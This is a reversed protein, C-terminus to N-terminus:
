GARKGAYRTAGVTIMHELNAPVITSAEADSNGAACVLIPHGFVDDTDVAVMTVIEQWVATGESDTEGGLSLNIVKAPDQNVPLGDINPDGVSWLISALIDSDTGGLQIGLARVPLIKGAWMVGATGEGNNTEAGITGAVHTGHFSHQGNGFLNDGPDTSDTDRGNGDNAIGESEIVDVGALARDIIDPHSRILGSDIVAVVVDDAGTTIDWAGPLRAFEYHWQYFYFPDNPIRFGRKIFNRAVVKVGPVRAAHLAKAAVTTDELSLPAGDKTLHVLCLLLASCSGVEIDVVGLQPALRAAAFMAQVAGKLQAKDFRAREFLVLVEGPRWEMVQKPAPEAEDDAPRSIPTALPTGPATAAPLDARQQAVAIRARLLEIAGPDTASQGTVGTSGAVLIRGALSGSGPEPGADPKPFEWCGLLLPLLLVPTLLTPFLRAIRGRAM